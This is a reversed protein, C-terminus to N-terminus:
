NWLDEPYEGSTILSRISKQVFEKDEHYTVGYWVASTSYVKVDAQKASIMEKIATPIYYESKLPDSMSDLFNVLGARIHPIVEKAFGLCNMSVVTDASLPIWKGDEEYAANEGDRKIKTRETVDSLYGNGDIECQGRSVTGNETLTNKLEYGVMCCHSVGHDTLDAKSLHEGLKMFADRGYFDDANVVAFNDDILDRAALVAHATGFPKTRGDPVKYGDPLDTLEQFAYEVKVHKEIRAGITEKFLDYNEKKIVFIVRDFGAKIADYVTFDIIFEGNETIPDLQKLGGYRSGMGAALVVLTMIIEM